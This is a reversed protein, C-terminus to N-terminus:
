KEINPIPEIGRRRADMLSLWFYKLEWLAQLNSSKKKEKIFVCLYIILINTDVYVMFYMLTPPYNLSVVYPWRFIKDLM